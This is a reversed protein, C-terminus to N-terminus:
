ESWASLAARLLISVGVWPLMLSLPTASPSLRVLPAAQIRLGTLGREMAKRGLRRIFEFPSPHCGRGDAAAAAVGAAAVPGHPRRTSRCGHGRDCPASHMGAPARPARVVGGVRQAVSRAHVPCVGQASGAPNPKARGGAQGTVAAAPRASPAAPRARRTCPGLTQRAGWLESGVVGLALGLVAVHRASVAGCAGMRYLWCLFM